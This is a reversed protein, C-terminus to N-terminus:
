KGIPRLDDKPGIIDPSYYDGHLIYHIGHLAIEKALEEKSM